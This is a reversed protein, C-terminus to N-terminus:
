EPEGGKGLKKEGWLIHACGPKQPNPKKKKRILRKREGEGEKGKPMIGVVVAACTATLCRGQNLNLRFQKFSQEKVGNTLFFKPSFHRARRSRGLCVPGSM